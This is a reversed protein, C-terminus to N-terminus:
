GSSTCARVNCRGAPLDSGLLALIRAWADDRATQDFPPTGPWFFAHGVGPYSVVEHEVGAAALAGRIQERQGADILADDEGALYLIRGTIGPTLDLTPVPRSMPIDTSTLWGGYLVAARSVALRCAALYALHGGASFGVVAVREIGPQSRLWEMGAAVDAVAQDRGLRNLYGFGEERGADDRELWRGPAADRHYFEPAVALYGAGALDDAVGRIDPNVGFLEHVVIVGAPAPAGPPRALYAPLSTGDRVPIKITTM